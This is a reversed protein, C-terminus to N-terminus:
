TPPHKALGFHASNCAGPPHSLRQFSSHVAATNLLSKQMSNTGACTKRTTPGRFGLLRLGRSHFLRQRFRVFSVIGNNEKISGIAHQSLASVNSHQTLEPAIVDVFTAGLPPHL